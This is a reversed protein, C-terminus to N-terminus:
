SFFYEYSNMHNKFIFGDKQTAFFAEASFGFQKRKNKKLNKAIKLTKLESGVRIYWLGWMLWNKAEREAKM